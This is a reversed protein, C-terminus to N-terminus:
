LIRKGRWTIPVESLAAEKLSKWTIEQHLYDNIENEIKQQHPTLGVTIETFLVRKIKTWLTPKALATTTCVKFKGNGYVGEDGSGTSDTSSSGDTNSSNYSVTGLDELGPLTADDSDDISVKKLVNTINKVVEDSSSTSVTKYIKEGM